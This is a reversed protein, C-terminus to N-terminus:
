SDRGEDIARGSTAEILTQLIHNVVYLKLRLAGVRAALLQFTDEADQKPAFGEVSTVEPPTGIEGIWYDLQQQSVKLRTALQAHGGVLAAAREPTLAHDPLRPQPTQQQLM